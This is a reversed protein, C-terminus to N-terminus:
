GNECLNRDDRWRIEGCCIKDQQLMTKNYLKVYTM